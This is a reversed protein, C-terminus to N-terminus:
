NTPIINPMTSLLIKIKKFIILKEPLPIPCYIFKYEHNIIWNGQWGKGKWDNTLNVLLKQPLSEPKMLLIKVERQKKSVQNKVQRLKLM